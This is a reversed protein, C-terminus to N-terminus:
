KLNGGYRNLGGIDVVNTYGMKALYSRAQSARAGSHCYVFVPTNKNKIVTKAQDINALPLNRAGLINGSKFEDKTRVDLLVAGKTSKYDEYGKNIDKPKLFDLFGM